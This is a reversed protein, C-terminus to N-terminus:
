GSVQEKKIIESLLRAKERAKEYYLSTDYKNLIIQYLEFSKQYNGLIEEIVASKFLFEDVFYDEPYQEILETLITNAEAYKELKMLINAIVKGASSSINNQKIVLKNLHEVAESYKQQFILLEGHAYSKLDLSDSKYSNIFITRELANNALSDTTGKKEIILNYNKLADAFNGQYYELEASKFTAISFSNKDKINAYSKQSQKLNGKILYSDGLKILSESKKKSKPYKFSVYGYYADFTFM